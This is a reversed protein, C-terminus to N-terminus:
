PCDARVSPRRPLPNEARNKGGSGLILSALRQRLGARRGFPMAADDLPMQLGTRPQGPMEIPGTQPLNATEFARSAALTVGRDFDLVGDATKRPFPSVRRKQKLMPSAVPADFIAQMPHTVYGEAFVFALHFLPM